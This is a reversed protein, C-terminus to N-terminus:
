CMFKKKSYEKEENLIQKIIKQKEYPVSSIMNGFKCSLSLEM